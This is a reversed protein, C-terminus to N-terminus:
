EVRGSAAATERIAAEPAPEGRPDLEAVVPSTRPVPVFPVHEEPRPAARKRMRHVAFVALGAHVVATTLFLGAVGVQAMVAAAVLPGIISGAASALLLSASAEVFEGPEMFDNAHAVCIAYIPIAFVGFLFAGFFLWEPRFVSTAALGLGALGALACALVIVQRRDLRDSARGLPWQGIAGAIVTLSMFVAVGRVDLGSAIAFVPGLTWFPSNALGTAFCGVLGVPSLQYIRAPRLAALRPPAPADSSTLAIPVAALSVLISALAFLPFAQPDYLMIMLQGLTIVSLNIMTYVSLIRGRTENSAHENLWSEIVVYLGAFCFGTVARLPWWIMPDVALAHALAVTSAIATLATFTRIHGVRRVMGPGLLCGTAFGLFYASGLIGINFTGFAELEARLPLLTGQLGNGMLLLAVSLLLAGVPAIVSAM